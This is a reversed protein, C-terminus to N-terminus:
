GSFPHSLFEGFKNECDEGSWCFICVNDTPFIHLDKKSIGFYTWWSAAGNKIVRSPHFISPRTDADSRLLNIQMQHMVAM